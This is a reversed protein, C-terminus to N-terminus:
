KIIKVQISTTAGNTQKGTVEFKTNPLLLFESEISHVSYPATSLGPTGKPASINIIVGSNSYFSSLMSSAVGANASTSIFSSEEYQTGVELNSFFKEGAGQVGRFLMTNSQLPPADKIAKEIVRTNNQLTEWAQDTQKGNVAEYAERTGMRLADNIPKFDRTTYGKVIAQSEEDLKYGLRTQFDQFNSLGYQGREAVIEPVGDNGGDAWSGHSSQDHEQHKLVPVLGPAFKIVKM